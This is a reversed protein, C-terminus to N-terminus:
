KKGKKVVKKAHAKVTKKEDVMQGASKLDDPKGKEEVKPVEVVPEDELVVLFGVVSHARKAEEASVTKTEGVKLTLWPLNVDAGSAPNHIRM